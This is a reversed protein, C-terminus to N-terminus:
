IRSAHNLLMITTHESTTLQTASKQTVKLSIAEDGIYIMDGIFCADVIKKYDVYVTNQDGCDKYKEDTSLVLNDGNQVLM